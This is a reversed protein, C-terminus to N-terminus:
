GQLSDLSRWLGALSNVYNSSASLCRKIFIPTESIAQNLIQLLQEEQTRNM